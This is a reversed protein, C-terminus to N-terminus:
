SPVEYWNGEALFRLSGEAPEGTFAQRFISQLKDNKKAPDGFPSHSENVWSADTLYICRAIRDTGARNM